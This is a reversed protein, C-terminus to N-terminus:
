QSQAMASAEWDAEEVWQNVRKAVSDWSEGDLLRDIAQQQQAAELHDFLTHLSLERRAADTNMTM